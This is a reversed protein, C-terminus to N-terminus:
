RDNAIGDGEGDWDKMALCDVYGLLRATEIRGVFTLM